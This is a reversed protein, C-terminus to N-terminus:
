LLGGYTRPQPPTPPAAEVIITGRMGSEFHGPLHCAMEYVGPRLHATFSRTEGPQVDTVEALHTDHRGGAALRLEHPVTDENTFRFTYNGAALRQEAPEFRMGTATVAVEQKSAARAEDAGLGAALWAGVRQLLGEDRRVGPIARHFEQSHMTDSSGGGGDPEVPPLALTHGAEPGVVVEAEPGLAAVLNDADIASVGPDRGGRVILVPVDVRRAEAVPDFSFVEQLYGVRDPPFVPRLEPPLDEPDPVQGTALLTAVVSRLREAHAQGHAPDPVATQNVFDDALVDVLPRGPTSVLVLSTVRPDAALRLAVMGGEDHGVVALREPDTEAREALFSLGAEADGVMDDFSLPQDEPLESQGSGRKDYRFSAIGIDGLMDSIDSYLPDPAGGPPAIGDRDTPGFGPIILVAPVPGREAADPVNLTGAISAGGAGTIQVAREAAVTVEADESGPATEQGDSRLLGHAALGVLV